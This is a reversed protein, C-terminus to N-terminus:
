NSPSALLSESTVEMSPTEYISGTAGLLSIYSNSSTTTYLEHLLAMLQLNSTQTSVAPSSSAAAETHLHLLTDPDTLECPFPGGHIDFASDPNTPESPFPGRYIDFASDPNAPESPFPETHLHLLTNPDTLECPFPGGHIDFASDPNAPEGPFPETHLHLLTNPDTFEYPFPEGHIDFASDPNSPESPFPETHLHFLTNPDTLEYPFPGRHIDFASDPNTPESPFPETHLHLLTNPDTLECPFPGRHIDFASDPNSPESPFPGGHIGFASDPNTPESPFIGAHIDFSSQRTEREVLSLRDRVAERSMLRNPEKQHNDLSLQQGDPTATDIEHSRSPPNIDTPSPESYIRTDSSSFITTDNEDCDRENFHEDVTEFSHNNATDTSCSFQPTPLSANGRYDSANFTPVAHREIDAMFILVRAMCLFNFVHPALSQLRRKLETNKSDHQKFNEISDKSPSVKLNKLSTKSVSDLLFIFYLHSDTSAGVSSEGAIGRCLADIREGLRAHSSLEKTSQPDLVAESLKVALFRQQTKNIGDSLDQQQKLFDQIGIWPSSIFDPASSSKWFSAIDNEWQRLKMLLETKEEEEAEEEEAEEEEAEEEEAEKEETEEEEAEEEEAEEEEEM